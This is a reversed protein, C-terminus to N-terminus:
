ARPSDQRGGADCCCDHEGPRGRRGLLSVIQLGTQETGREVPARGHRGAEARDLIGLRICGRTEALHRREAIL